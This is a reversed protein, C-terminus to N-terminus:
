RTYDELSKAMEILRPQPSVDSKWSIYSNHTYIGAEGAIAKKSVDWMDDHSYGLPIDWRLAVLLSWYKLAKIEGDTYAEYYAKGKYNLPCVKSTPIKVNGVWNYFDAGKKDLAGWNCVEVGVSQQELQAFNPLRVDWAGIHVAWYQEDYLRHVKGADDIVVPTAVHIRQDNQWDLAVGAANDNGATHHWVIQKKNCPTKHFGTFTPIRLVNLLRGYLCEWSINGFVGDADIKCAKQFDKISAFGAEKLLNRLLNARKGTTNETITNM